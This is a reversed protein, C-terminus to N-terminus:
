IHILSLDYELDADQIALVESTSKKIAFDIAATKGKNKGLSYVKIKSSEFNKAIEFSKDKSGDDVIIIEDVFDLSNVKKLVKEITKEENYVPILLAFTYKSM